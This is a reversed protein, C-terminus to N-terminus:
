LGAQACRANRRGWYHVIGCGENAKLDQFMTKINGSIDYVYHTAFDYYSNSALEKYVTAVVRKRSNATQLNTITTNTVLSTNPKDYVSITLQRDFGLAYWTALQSAIKTDYSGGLDSFVLTPANYKEGTETVRGLSDYKTYTYRGASPNAPNKPQRQEASQSAVPKGLVNYWFRTNGGDPTTYEVVQNYSNHEYNSPYKHNPFIGAVYNTWTLGVWSPQFSGSNYTMKDEVVSGQGENMPVYCVLGAQSTPIFCNNYANQVIESASLLRHYWRFQKISGNLYTTTANAFAGGLNLTNSAGGAVFFYASNANLYTLPVSNGNIFM